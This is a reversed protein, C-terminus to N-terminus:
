KGAKDREAVLKDLASRLTAEEMESTQQDVIRGQPDIFVTTPIGQIGGYQQLVQEDALVIPYTIGSHKVMPAIENVDGNVADLSLGIFQVGKAAYDKQVQAFYPLEALCPPCWTAWFNLVVIKGKYDALSIQKEVKNPTPLTWLPAVPRSEATPLPAAKDAGQDGSKSCASVLLIASLLFLPLFRLIM